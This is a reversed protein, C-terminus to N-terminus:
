HNFTSLSRASFRGGGTELVWMAAVVVQLALETHDLV